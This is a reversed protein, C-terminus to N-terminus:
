IINAAIVLMMNHFILGGKTYFNSSNTYFRGAPITAALIKIEISDETGQTCCLSSRFFILENCILITIALSKNTDTTVRRKHVSAPACARNETLPTTFDFFFPSVNIPAETRTNFPVTPVVV